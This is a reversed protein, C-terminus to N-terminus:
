GWSKSLRFMAHGSVFPLWAMWAQFITLCPRRSSVCTATANEHACNVVM